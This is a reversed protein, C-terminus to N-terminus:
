ADPGAADAKAEPEALRRLQYPDRMEAIRAAAQLLPLVAAKVAPLDADALNSPFADVAAKLVAVLEGDLGAVGPDAGNRCVAEQRKLTFEAAGRIGLNAVHGIELGSAALQM